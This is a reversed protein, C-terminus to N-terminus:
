GIVSSTAGNARTLQMTRLRGPVELAYVNDKPSASRSVGSTLTVSVKVVDDSVPGYVRTEAGDTRAVALVLPKTTAESVLGCASGGTAELCIHDGREIVYLDTGDSATARRMIDATRASAPVDSPRQARRFLAFENALRSDQRSTPSATAKRARDELEQQQAVPLAESPRTPAPQHLPSSVAYATAVVAALTALAILSAATKPPTRM